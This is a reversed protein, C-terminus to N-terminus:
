KKRRVAILAIVAAIVIPAGILLAYFATPELGFIQSQWMNTKDVKTHMTYNPFM